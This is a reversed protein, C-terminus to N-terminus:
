APREDSVDESDEAESDCEDADDEGLVYAVWADIEEYIPEYNFDEDNQCLTWIAKRQKLTLGEYNQILYENVDVGIFPDYDPDDQYYLARRESKRGM